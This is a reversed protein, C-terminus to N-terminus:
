RALKKLNDITLERLVHTDQTLRKIQTYSNILDGIRIQLIQKALPQVTKEVNQRATIIVQTLLVRQKEKPNAAKTEPFVVADGLVTKALTNFQKASLQKLSDNYVTIIFLTFSVLIVVFINILWRAKGSFLKGM